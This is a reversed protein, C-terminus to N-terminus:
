QRLLYLADVNIVPVNDKSGDQAEHVVKDHTIYVM